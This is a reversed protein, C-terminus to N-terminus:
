RKRQLLWMAGVVPGSLLDVEQQQRQAFANITNSLDPHLPALRKCREAISRTMASYFARDEPGDIVREHILVDDHAGLAALTAAHDLCDLLELEEADADEALFADDLLIYGGPRVCRRLAAVTQETNGLVDGLALMMVLDYDGGEAVRARVDGSAFSCRSSLGRARARTSAHEVFAPVADIGHMEVGFSEAVALAASGKGCGLDLGRAHAPLKAHALVALVDDARAGLDELDAFLEPLVPLLEAEADMSSAVLEALEPDSLDVM